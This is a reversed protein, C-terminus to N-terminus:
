NCVWLVAGSLKRYLTASVSGFFARGLATRGRGTRGTALVAYGGDEAEAQLLSAVNGGKFVSTEIREPDIGCERLVAAAMSLLASPEPGPLAEPRVVRVLRIRHEPAAAAMFGVHDVTRMSSDSGDVGVLIGSRGPQPRRCLWLPFFFDSGLIKRSLSAEFLGDLGGVARKGLVVADYIGEAGEMLIEKVPSIRGSGSKLFVADGSFGREVLWARGRELIRMGAWAAGAEQARIRAREEHGGDGSSYKPMPPLSHFLTLSIGEKNQFYDKVFRGAHFVGPVDGITLLLHRNM